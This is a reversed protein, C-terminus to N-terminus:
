PEVKKTERGSAYPKLAAYLAFTLPTQVGLERGKRVVVGVLDELELRRGAQLDYYMSPRMQPDVAGVFKKFHGLLDEPLAVGGARAVAIGEEVIGWRLAVIDPDAHIAGFALGTTCGVAALSCMGVLKTWLAANIDPAVETKIGSDELVKAIRQVRESPRTDLEGILTKHAFAVEIVGPDTARSSVYSTAGVACGAGLLRELRANHEVGNQLSVVATGPGVLPRALKAAPETDYTKVCFLVLEAPPRGGPDAIANAPVRFRADGPGRVSIGTARLADVRPPRVLFTVDNGARALMAGYWGGLGGAGVVAIRV